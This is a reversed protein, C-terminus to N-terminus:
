VGIAKAFPRDSRFPGVVALHLLEPKILDAAVRKTDETTVEDMLAVVDDVNRVEGMLLEQGGLWSSVARSDEMRLLLRGKALEKARSLEDENLGDRLKMLQEVIAKTTDVANKPDVGAYVTVAGADEYHSLYSHVDYALGLRERIELFLRSTMGEGLIVNLMSLAYRDPHRQPVGPLAVCVHAQETKRNIIKILPTAHGNAAPHLPSPAGSVWDPHTAELAALVEEHEVNGAVSIVANSASYQQGLYDLLMPRTIAGVTEKSGGVDRGLPQNPWLIEDIALGAVESPSDQVQNLEEMIVKREKEVEDPVFSSHHVMDTLLDMGIGFHPKAIKCWYVTLERDTAANISGGLNEITGSVDEPRPRKKTGKFLMHELFHSIGAQPDTEYRSGAGIYISIAVSRTHPMSSTLVRLGNPLISKQYM